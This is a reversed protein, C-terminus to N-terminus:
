SAPRFLQYLMLYVIVGTVSVYLWIPFTIKAWRRHTRRLDKLGTVITVIALFPVAAALVIHTVLITFYAYRIAVPASTPFRRSGAIAHYTVYSILFLVSVAFAFLMSRTHARERGNKIHVYGVVLLVTALANLSANLHPLVDALSPL